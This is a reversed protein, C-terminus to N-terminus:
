KVLLKRSTKGTKVIYFGPAVSITADGGSYIRKGDINFIEVAATANAVHIEGNEASIRVMSESVEDIGTLIASPTVAEDGMAVFAYSPTASERQAANQTEVALDKLKMRVFFTLGDSQTLDQWSEPLDSKKIWNDFTLSGNSNVVDALVAAKANGLEEDLEFNPDDVNMPDGRYALIQYSEVCDTNVASPILGNIKISEELEPYGYTIVYTYNVTPKEIVPTVDLAIRIVNDNSITKAGANGGLPQQYTCFDASMTYVDEIKFNGGYSKQWGTVYEVNRSFVGTIDGGDVGELVMNSPNTAKIYYNYTGDNILGVVGWLSKQYDPNISGAYHIKHIRFSQTDENLEMSAFDHLLSTSESNHEFIAGTGLPNYLNLTYTNDNGVRKAYIKNGKVSGNSKYIDFVIKKYSHSWDFWTSSGTDGGTERTRLQLYIGPNDFTVRICDDTISITGAYRSEKYKFYHCTKGKNNGSKPTVTHHTACEIKASKGDVNISQAMSFTKSASGNETNDLYLKDGDITFTVPGGTKFSKLRIHADDIKEFESWCSEQILDTGLMESAYFTQTCFKDEGCFDDATYAFIKTSEGCLLITTGLLVKTLIRFKM